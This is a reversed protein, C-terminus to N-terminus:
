EQKITVTQLSASESTVRISMSGGAPLIWFGGGKIEKEQGDIMTIVSGAVLEVVTFDREPFRSVQEGPHIVWNRVLVHLDRMRGDKASLTARGDFREAPKLVAETKQPKGTPPSEQAAVSVLALGEAVVVILCQMWHRRM